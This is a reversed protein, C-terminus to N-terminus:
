ISMEPFGVLVSIGRKRTWRRLSAIVSSTGWFGLRCSTHRSYNPVSAIMESRKNIWCITIILGRFFLAARRLLTSGFGMWRTDPLVKRVTCVGTLFFSTSRSEDFCLHGHPSEKLVAFPMFCCTRLEGFCLHVHPLDNLSTIEM